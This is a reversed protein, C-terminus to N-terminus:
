VLGGYGPNGRLTQSIVQLDGRMGAVTIKLMRYNEKLAHEYLKRRIGTSAQVVAHCQSVRALLNGAIRMKTRAINIVIDTTDNKM